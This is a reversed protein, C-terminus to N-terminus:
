PALRGRPLATGHPGPGDPRGAGRAELERAVAELFRQAVAEAVRHLLARDAIRGVVGFPPEYTATLELHTRGPGLWGADLSGELSPFLRQHDEVRIRLPLLAVRDTTLAQGVQLTARRSIDHGGVELGVDLLLRDGEEGAAAALGSLWAHPDGLMAARVDRFDVALQTVSKLFM